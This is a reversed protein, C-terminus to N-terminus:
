DGGSTDAAPQPGGDGLLVQLDLPVLDYVQREGGQEFVRPNAAQRHGQVRGIGEPGGGAVGVIRPDQGRGAPGLADV